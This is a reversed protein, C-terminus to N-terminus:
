RRPRCRCSGAPTRSGRATRPPPVPTRGGRTAPPGSRTRRRTWARSATGRGPAPTARRRRPRGPAERARPGAAPPRLAEEAVPRHLDVRVQARHEAEGQLRLGRSPERLQRRFGQLVPRELHDAVQQRPEGVVARDDDGDLVQVPGVRGRHLQGLPQEPEGLAGGHQEDDRLPGLAVVRRPADLLRGRPLKGMPCALQRELREGAVGLLLQQVAQDSLSGQRRVQLPTDQLVGFPVREVDLLEDARQHVRPRQHRGAVAAPMEVMGHGDLDGLGHLLHDQGADVPERGVAM